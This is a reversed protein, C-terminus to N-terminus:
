KFFSYYGFDKWYEERIDSIDNLKNIYLVYVVFLKLM